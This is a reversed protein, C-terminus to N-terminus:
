RRIPEAVLEQLRARIDAVATALAEDPDSRLALYHQYARIAGATDGVLAALRGEEELYRSLGTTGASGHHYPRRRVAALAQDLNGRREWLRALTMNMVFRMYANTRPGSRVLSDFRLLTSYADPSDQIAAYQTRLVAACLAVYATTGRDLASEATELKQIAGVVEDTEGIAIQWLQRGCLDMYQAYRTDEDESLSANVSTARERLAVTARASDGDWFVAEVVRFLEDFPLSYAGRISMTESAESLRGSNFALDRAFWSASWLENHGASRNRREAAAAAADALDIGDMQSIGIIRELVANSPEDPGSLVSAAAASDGFYTATRWRVYDAYDGLSDNALLVTSVRRVEASDDALVELDLLEQLAPVFASDSELVQRFLTRARRFPAERSLMPGLHFLLSGLEYKAEWHDPFSAVMREWAAVQELHTPRAPYRPGVRGVLYVSDRRGLTEQFNWAVRVASSYGSRDGTLNAASVVAIAAQAFTSDSHLADRYDDLAEQYLGSRQKELGTLYPRLAGLSRSLLDAQNKDGAVRGVLIKAALRDVLVRLSDPTGSVEEVRNLEAGDAVRYTSVNLVFEFRTGLVQGWVLEGAGLEAAMDLAQRLPMLGAGAGGSRQWVEQVEGPDVVGAETGGSLAASLLEAFGGSTVVMSDIDDSVHFPMVVLADSEVARVRFREMLGAIAWIAAGGGVVGLILLTFLVVWKPVASTARDIFREGKPAASLAKAFAAPTAFRDAPTKELAKSVVADISSSVTPRTIRISRVKEMQTRAMVAQINPGTFPPEGVLMEYLVCGLSYVDSRGDLRAKPDWQEPSMYEPTGLALGTSTLREAGAAEMARAIGFDAVLAREGSLLINAPKIDRHVVGQDHAYSLTAAVQETISLAEDIALPGERELRDRVSQGEVVPMVYYPVDDVSGSDYVALVNPHDLNAAIEIERLFRAAGLVPGLEPRLVKLAVQRNHKKDEALYVVAMGGSGLERVIEYQGALSAKLRALLDTM